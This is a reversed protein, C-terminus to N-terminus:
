RHSGRFRTPMGSLGPVISSVVRRFHDAVKAETMWDPVNGLRPGLVRKCFGVPCDASSPDILWAQDLVACANWTASNRPCIALIPKRTAVYDFLKSPLASKSMSLLLMGDSCNIEALAHEYAGAALIRTVWGYAAIRGGFTQLQLREEASFTGMFVVEFPRKSNRAEIELPGLIFRAERSSHSGGLRGAYILRPM